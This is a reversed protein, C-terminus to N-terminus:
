IIVCLHIPDDSYGEKILSENLYANISYAVPNSYLIKQLELKCPNYAKPMKFAEFIKM